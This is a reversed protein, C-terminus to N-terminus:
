GADIPPRGLDPRNRRAKDQAALSASSISLLMAVFLAVCTAGVIWTRKKCM